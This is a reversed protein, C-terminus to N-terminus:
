SPSTFCEAHLCLLDLGVHADDGDEEIIMADRGSLHIEPCMVRDITADIDLPKTQWASKRREIKKVLTDFSLIYPNFGKGLCGGKSDVDEKSRCVSEILM